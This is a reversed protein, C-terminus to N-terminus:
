RRHVVFLPATWWDRSDQRSFAWTDPVLRVGYGLEASTAIELEAATADRKGVGPVVESMDGTEWGQLDVYDWSGKGRGGDVLVSSAWQLVGVVTPEASEPAFGSDPDPAVEAREAAVPWDPVFGAGSSRPDPRGQEVGSFWGRLRDGISM